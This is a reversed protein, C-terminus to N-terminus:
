SMKEFDQDKLQVCVLHTIEGLLQVNLRASVLIDYEYQKSM